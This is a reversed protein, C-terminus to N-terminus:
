SATPRGAEIVIPNSDARRSLAPIISIIYLAFGPIRRKMSSATNVLRAAREGNIAVAIQGFNTAPTAKKSSPSATIIEANQASKVPNFGALNARKQSLAAYAPTILPPVM